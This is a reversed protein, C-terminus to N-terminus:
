LISKLGGKRPTPGPCIKAEDRKSADVDLSHIDNRYKNEKVTMPKM